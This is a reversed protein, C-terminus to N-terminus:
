QSNITSQNILKYDMIITDIHLQPVKRGAERGETKNSFRLILSEPLTQRSLDTNNSCTHEALLHDPTLQAPPEQGLFGRM